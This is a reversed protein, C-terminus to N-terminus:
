CRIRYGNNDQMIIKSQPTVEYLFGNSDCEKRIEYRSACGVLFM